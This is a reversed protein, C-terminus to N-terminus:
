FILKGCNECRNMLIEHRYFYAGRCDCVEGETNSVIPIAFLKVLEQIEKIMAWMEKAEKTNCESEFIESKLNDLKKIVRNKM